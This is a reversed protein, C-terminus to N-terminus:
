KVSIIIVITHHSASRHAILHKLHTPVHTRILSRFISCRFDSSNYAILLDIFRVFTAFTIPVMLIITVVIQGFYKNQRAIWFLPGYLQEDDSILGLLILDFSLFTFQSAILNSSMMGSNLNLDTIAIIYQSFFGSILISYDLFKNM